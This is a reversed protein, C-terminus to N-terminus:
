FTECTNFSEDTFASVGPNIVSNITRFLVGPKHHNNIFDSFYKRKAEKVSGQYTSLSEKYIEYSVQLKDKKWKSEAKRCAQRFAQTVENLWPESTPKNTRIRVPAVSDLISSSSYNFLNLLLEVDLHSPPNELTTTSPARIYLHKFREATTSDLKRVRM